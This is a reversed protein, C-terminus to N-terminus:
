SREYIQLSGVVPKISVIGRVRDEKLLVRSAFLLDRVLHPVRRVGHLFLRNLFEVLLQPADRSQLM